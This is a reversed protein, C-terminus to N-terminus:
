SRSSTSAESSSLKRRGSPASLFMYRRLTVPSVSAGGSRAARRRRSSPSHKPRRRRSSVRRRRSTQARACSSLRRPAKRRRSRSFYSAAGSSAPRSATVRATRQPRAPRSPPSSASSSHDDAAHGGIEAAKLALRQLEFGAEVDYGAGVLAALAGPAGEDAGHEVADVGRLAHLAAKQGVLETVRGPGARRHGPRHLEFVRPTLYRERAPGLGGGRGHPLEPGHVAARRLRHRPERPGRRAFREDARPPLDEAAAGEYALALGRDRARSLQLPADGGYDRCALLPGAAGLREAAQPGPLVAAPAAAARARQGLKLGLQARLLLQQLADALGGAAAL